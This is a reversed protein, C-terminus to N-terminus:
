PFISLIIKGNLTASQTTNENSLYFATCTYQLHCLDNIDCRFADNKINKVEITTTYSINYNTTKNQNYTVTNDTNNNIVNNQFLWQVTANPQAYVQCELQLRSENANWRLINM